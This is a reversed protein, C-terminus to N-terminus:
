AMLVLMYVMQVHLLAFPSLNMLIIKVILDGMVDNHNMLVNGAMLVPLSIMQASLYSPVPPCVKMLDM